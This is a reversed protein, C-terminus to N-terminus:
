IKSWVPLKTLAKYGKCVFAIAKAYRGLQFVQLKEFIMEKKSGNKQVSCSLFPQLTPKPM